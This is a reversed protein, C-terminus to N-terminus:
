GGRKKRMNELHEALSMTPKAAEPAEDKAVVPPPPPTSESTRAASVQEAVRQAADTAATKVQEVGAQLVDGAVSKLDVKGSEIDDMVDFVRDAMTRKKGERMALGVLLFGIILGVFILPAKMLLEIPDHIYYSLFFCFFITLAITPLIRERTKRGVIFGREVGEALPMKHWLNYWPRYIPAGFRRDFFYTPVALVVFALVYLLTGM